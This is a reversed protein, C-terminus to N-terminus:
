FTTMWRTGFVCLYIYSYIFNAIYINWCNALQTSPCSQAITYFNLLQVFSICIYLLEGCMSILKEQSRKNTWREWITDELKNLHSTAYQLHCFFFDNIEIRLPSPSNLTVSSNKIWFHWFNFYFHVFFLFM